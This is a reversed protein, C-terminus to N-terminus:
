LFPPMKWLQLSEAEYSIIFDCWSLARQPNGVIRGVLETRVKAARWSRNEVCCDPTDNPPAFALKPPCRRQGDFCYGSTEFARAEAM